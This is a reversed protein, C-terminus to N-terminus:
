LIESFLNQKNITSLGGRKSLKPPWYPVGKGRKGEKGGEGEKGKDEKAASERQTLEDLGM